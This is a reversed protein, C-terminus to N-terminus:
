KKTLFLKNYSAKTISKDSTLSKQTTKLNIKTFSIKTFAKKKEIKFLPNHKIIIIM